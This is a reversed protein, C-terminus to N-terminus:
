GPDRRYSAGAGPHLRSYKGPKDFAAVEVAVKVAGHLRVPIRDARCYGHATRAPGSAIMKGDIYLRYYSRAAIVLTIEQEEFVEVRTYFGLFQNYQALIGEGWIAKAKQFVKEKEM